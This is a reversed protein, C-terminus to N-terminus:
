TTIQSLVPSAPLTAAPGNLDKVFGWGHIAIMESACDRCVRRMDGMKEVFLSPYGDDCGHIGCSDQSESANAVLLM